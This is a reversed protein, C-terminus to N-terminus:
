ATRARGVATDFARQAMVGALHARYDASAATTSVFPDAITVDLKVPLPLGILAREVEPLRRPAALAGTIAVAVGAVTNDPAPAVAVAVGCIATLNARDAFRAYASGPSAPGIEVWVILEGRGIKAVGAFLDAVSVVRRGDSGAICVTADLALLAASLDSGPHASAVTGGVTARNRCQVDGTVDIADTLMGPMHATRVVPEICLDTLTTLAGVRLRGDDVVAVGRLEAIRGIDVLHSTNLEGRKLLTLVGNGGAIPLSREEGALEALAESLTDPATYQIRRLIMM